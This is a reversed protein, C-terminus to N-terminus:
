GSILCVWTPPKWEEFHTTESRVHDRKFRGAVGWCAHIICADNLQGGNGGRGHPPSGRPGGGISGNGRRPRTGDKTPRESGPHLIAAPASNGRPGLRAQPRDARKRGTGPVHGAMAGANEGTEGGPTSTHRGDGAQGERFLGRHTSAAQGGGSTERRPNWPRKQIQNDDVIILDGPSCRDFWLTAWPREPEATKGLRGSM